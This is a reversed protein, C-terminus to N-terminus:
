GGQNVLKKRIGSFWDRQEDRCSGPQESQLTQKYEEYAKDISRANVETSPYAPFATYSHEYLEAQLITRVVNEPDSEDWEEKKSKFGVSVGRIDKRQIADYVFRGWSNDPLDNEFRLGTDDQVQRLTGSVTSGLVIDTNHNHLAFQGDGAGLNSFAKSAFRERFRYSYGLRQSYQNWKIAYGSVTLKDGDGARVELDEIFIRREIEESM